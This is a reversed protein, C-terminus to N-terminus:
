YRPNKRSTGAFASFCHDFMSIFGLLLIFSVCISLFFIRFINRFYKSINHYHKVDYYFYKQVYKQFCISVRTFYGFIIWLNFVFYKPSIRHYVDYLINHYLILNIVFCFVFFNMNIFQYFLTFHHSIGNFINVLFIESYMEYFLTLCLFNKYNQSISYLVHLVIVTTDRWYKESRLM